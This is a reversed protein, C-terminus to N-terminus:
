ATVERGEDLILTHEFHDVIRRDHTAVVLTAGNARAQDVLLDLVKEARSDDLSATPEDALLVEPQNMVARAIAVRQRQGHSLEHPYADVKHGMDLTALVERIRDRRQPLDALYPAMLLNDEVSLTALLHMRQFVIGIHRGRFRDLAHGKLAGLEQDAVVVSGESPKRLGALIHLLTTKGSGSQGLILHHEGQKAELSPLDLVTDDGYRHQINSLRFM